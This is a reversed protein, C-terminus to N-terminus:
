TPDKFAKSAMSSAVVSLSSLPMFLAAILPHIVGSAALAGATVNYFLSIRFNRKITVITRSAGDLVSAVQAIGHRSLFVGAAEMSVEASGSVAIGCTAASLAAADNVGDGVFVTTSTTLAQQVIALKQEPSAEAHAADAGVAAAVAAVAAPEDGSLLAVRWGRRQLAAVTTRTASRIQDTLGLVAVVQYGVAVLVPTAGAARIEALGAALEHAPLEDAIRGAQPHKAILALIWAPSGVHVVVDSASEDGASRLAQADRAANPQNADPRVMASIGYGFEEHIDTAVLTPADATALSGAIAKAIPHASCKEVAAVVARYRDAGRWFTVASRGETITGTKDLFLVGPTALREIADAGKILIGQHAARSLAIAMAVPTALMLACPCTVVLLAMAHELGAGWSSFVGWGVVTLVAVTLVVVVFRGTMQDVMKEIPAKRRSVEDVFRALRGLRTAEGIAQAAIWLPQATNTTGAAVTVGPKVDRLASEGSLVACDLMSQGWVIVGDVAIVEGPMVLVVDGVVIAEIPVETTAAAPLEHPERQAAVVRHARRPALAHLLEGALSARRQQRAVLWRSVLLLFVLMALSDFYIEGVGRLVNITGWGLGAVIGISLPLDLHLRRSRISALAARFFPMAAFTLTPVAVVMSAWRFFTIDRTAMQGFMGAYLAAALLMINGVAAGAVGLRLLMARDELRRQAERDLGRFPHVPHGLRDLHTAIASLKVTAPDFVVDARAGAFDVNVEMVGGLCQPTSEVLWMCGVCRLDELYFSARSRGQPDLAVHHAYFVADDFEVYRQASPQAPTRKDSLAYYRELGFEAIAGYVVACGNCCFALTPAVDCAPADAAASSTAAQTHLAATAADVPTGCHACLLPPRNAAVPSAVSLGGRGIGAVSGASSPIGAYQM